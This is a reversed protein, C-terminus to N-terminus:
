GGHRALWRRRQRSMTEPDEPEPKMASRRVQKRPQQGRTKKPRLEPDYPMPDLVIRDTIAPGAGMAVVSMLAAMRMLNM